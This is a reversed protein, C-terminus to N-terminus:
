AMPIAPIRGEGVGPRWDWRREDAIRIGNDREIFWVFLMVSAAIALLISGILGLALTASRASKGPQM